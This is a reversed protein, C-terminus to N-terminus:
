STASVEVHCCVVNVVFMWARPPIRVWSRLLRAAVSRRRLCPPWQSRSLTIKSFLILCNIKSISVCQTRQSTRVTTRYAHRHLISSHWDSERERLTICRAVCMSRKRARRRRKSACTRRRSRAQRNSEGHGGGTRM